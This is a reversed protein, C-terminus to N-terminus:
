RGVQGSNHSKGWSEETLSLPPLGPLEVELDNGCANGIIIRRGGRDFLDSALM